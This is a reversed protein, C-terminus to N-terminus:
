RRRQYRTFVHDQSRALGRLTWAAPDLEDPGSLSPGSGGVLLPATTLCLEDLLDAAVLQALLAPGGECHVRRLGRAALADLGAALDLRSRGATIVTAPLSPLQAAGDETTLVLPLAAAGPAFIPLDPDLGGGTVVALPPPASFGWRRRRASAAPLNPYGEARVTGAGVLVVDALDRLLALLRQDARSSLGRSRGSIAARGDLSAVMNARTWRPGETPFAYASALADDDVPDAGAVPWLLQM